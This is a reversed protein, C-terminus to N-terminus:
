EDDENATKRSPWLFILVIIAAAGAIILPYSNAGLVRGLGPIHGLANGVIDKPAIIWPDLEANNDGQTVYQPDTDTGINETIRHIVRGGEGPQGEPVVYSVVDGVDYSPRQVTMVVDGTVYTPEMSQGQVVTFGTVGGLNAPWLAIVILILVFASGANRLIVRQSSHKNSWASRPARRSPPSTVGQPAEQGVLTEHESMM